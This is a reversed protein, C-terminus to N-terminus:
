YHYAEDIRMVKQQNKKSNFFSHPDACKSYNCMNHHRNLNWLNLRSIQIGTYKYKANSDGSPVCHATKGDTRHMTYAGDAM